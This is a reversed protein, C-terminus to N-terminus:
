QLGMHAGGDIPIAAGTVYAAHASCLFAVFEGFDAPDGARRAPVRAIQDELGDGFIERIRPTAHLSPQVSNVTVGDAAVELALTKLFATLGTRSTNSLILTPIPQRVAVSTIAVVRGWGRERMEPVTRLCAAVAPLVGSELAAAYQELTSSAFTGVPPGPGNLILIDAPGGLAEDAQDILAVAGESTTVDAVLPTAGAGVTVAAREIRARNHSAMAVLVGANALAQAVALGLGSSAAPVVARRGEIGLDM